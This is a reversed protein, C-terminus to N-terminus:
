KYIVALLNETLIAGSASDGSEIAITLRIWSRVASWMARRALSLAGHVVPAAEFCEVRPFGAAGAVQAISFRTFATEHTFDGYLMRAAGPSEGNVTHVIWRGGARLAHYVADAFNMVEDKGLHELVDFSVVADLSESGSSRLAELSDGHFVNAIGLRAAAAVQAPSRDVGRVNRYGAQAAFHLLAGHGCGLDLIRADRSPPFHERVLKRLYPARPAFGEVTSPAVDEPSSATYHQYIRTRYDRAQEDDPPM